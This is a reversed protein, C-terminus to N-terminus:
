RTHHPLQAVLHDLRRRAADYARASLDTADIVAGRELSGACMADLLSLVERDGAALERLRGVIEITWRTAEPNSVSTARALADEVEAQIADNHEDMSVHPVVTARECDHRMRSRIALFIHTSLRINKSPDWALRGLLTDSVVDAITDEVYAADGRGGCSELIRAASRAFREVRSHLEPTAQERFAALWQVDHMPIARRTARAPPQTSAPAPAPEAPAPGPEAPGPGPEASGPGPEASPQHDLHAAVLGEASDEVQREYDESVGDSNALYMWAERVGNSPTLSTRTRHTARNRPETPFRPQVEQTRHSSRLLNSEMDSM